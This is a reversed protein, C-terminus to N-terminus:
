PFWETKAHGDYIRSEENRRPVRTIEEAIGEPRPASHRLLRTFVQRRQSVTVAPTKGGVRRREPCLFWLAVMALTMHHLWGVWGRVEYHDLGAEGNGAEFFGEVRHPQRQARVPEDLPLKVATNSLAFDTRSEGASRLAARFASARGFEEDGVIWVTLWVPCAETSFAWRPTVPRPPTPWFSGSRATTWM